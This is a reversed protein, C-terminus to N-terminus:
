MKPPLYGPLLPTATVSSFPAMLATQLTSPRVKVWLMERVLVLELSDPITLRLRLTALPLPAATGTWVRM